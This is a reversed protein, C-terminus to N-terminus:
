EDEDDWQAIRVCRCQFDEGAHARRGTKPDVIPPQDFPVIEGELAAHGPRVRSDRSTSWKYKTVGVRRMREASLQANAKLVQDRAILEARSEAVGLREQLAKSLAEARIGETTATRVLDQVQDLYEGGISSILDVNARRWADMVDGMGPILVEPAIGLVRSMESLNKRNVGEQASSVIGTVAAEGVIANIRERLRDLTTGTIVDGAADTRQEAELADLGAAFVEKTAEGIRKVIGRLARVYLAEATKPLQPIKDAQRTPRKKPRTRYAAELAARIGAQHSM